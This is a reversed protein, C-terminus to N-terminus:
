FFIQVILMIQYESNHRQKLALDGRTLGYNSNIYYYILLTYLSAFVSGEVRNLLFLSVVMGRLLFVLCGDGGSLKDVIELCMSQLEYKSLMLIEMASPMCFLPCTIFVLHHNRQALFSSVFTIAFISHIVHELHGKF